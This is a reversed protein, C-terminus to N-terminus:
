FELIIPLKLHRERGRVAVTYKGQAAQATLSVVFKLPLRTARM